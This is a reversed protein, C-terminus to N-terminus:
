VAATQPTRKREKLIFLLPLAIAALGAWFFLPANDGFASFSNGIPAAGFAGLMGLTNTLGIATGAFTAGVEKIEFILTNALSSVGTRIMGCLALLIWTGTKGAVPILGVCLVVIATAVIIVTKRSRIKDSILMMPIVGVVGIGMFITMAWDANAPTWGINRLYLPLYGGVGMNTGWYTLLIFGLLWVERIHVV